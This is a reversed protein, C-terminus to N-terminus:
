PYNFFKRYHNSLSWYAVIASALAALAGSRAFYDQCKACIDIVFSVLMAQAGVALVVIDPVLDGWPVYAQRTPEVGDEKPPNM